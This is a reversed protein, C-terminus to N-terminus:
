HLLYGGAIRQRGALTDQYIVPAPLSLAHGATRLQLAGQGDIAVRDVGTVAMRIQAPDAGPALVWDYELDGRAGYYVLDIGPYLQAYRVRAYAPIHRRWAAPDAGHLVHREGSLPTDAGFQRSASAPWVVGGFGRGVRYRMCTPCLRHLAQNSELLMGGRELCRRAAQPIRQWGFLARRDSSSMITNIMPPPPRSCARAHFAACDGRTSLTYTAGPLAPVARSALTSFTAIAASAISSSSCNARSLAIASVMTPGSAGSTRPTTSRNRAACSRQKPGVCAAACSSPAFAKALSKRARWPM